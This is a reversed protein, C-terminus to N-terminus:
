NQVNTCPAQWQPATRIIGSGAHRIPFPWSWIELWTEVIRLAM